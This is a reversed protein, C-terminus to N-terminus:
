CCATFATPHRSALGSRDGYPQFAWWEYPHSTFDRGAMAEPLCRGITCLAAQAAPDRARKPDYYLSGARHFRLSRM